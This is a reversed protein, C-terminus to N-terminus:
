KSRQSEFDEDTYPLNSLDIKYLTILILSLIHSIDRLDFLLSKLAKQDRTTQPHLESHKYVQVSFFQM